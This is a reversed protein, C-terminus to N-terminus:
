QCKASENELFLDALIIATLAEVIPVARPLVCPDHRGGANLEVSNGEKDVTQQTQAITSTPKFGIRFVINQGNSIGGQIGGSHNTATTIGKESGVFADNNESGKRYTSAFGDGFEVGKVANISLMAKGLEAHLKGFVPEGIGAPCNYVICTISGGLSDGNEKAELIAKEMAASAVPDPCRVASSDVLERTINQDQFQASIQHVRDVFAVISISTKKQLFQEAIAGAAVWGATIRASSRGGGRHDRFGYKTDYTFDAHGPRYVKALADYDQSRADENELLMCIPSGTTKNQFIGSLIRVADTEKRQTTINSQGPRRRDMQKQIAAMDLELGAPCGDIVAGVAEGHSEGFSTVSFHKGITNRAL